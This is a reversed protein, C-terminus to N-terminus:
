CINLRDFLQTIKKQYHEISTNNKITHHCMNIYDNAKPQKSLIISKDPQRELIAATPSDICITHTCIYELGVQHILAGEIIIIHHTTSAIIQNVIECIKPHVLENLQNLKQKSSFVIPGLVKRNIKGNEQITEGFTAILMNKIHPIELVQHGVKDCDIHEVDAITKKIWDCAMSKGSGTRGTIGIVTKSM